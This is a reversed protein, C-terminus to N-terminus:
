GPGIGGSGSGGGTGESGGGSTGGGAAAGGGTGEGAGGTEPAAEAEPAAEPTETAEPTPEAGGSPATTNGGSTGASSPGEGCQKFGYSHAAEQFATLASVAKSEAAGLASSEGREDALKSEDEAKALEEAATMVEGADAPAGLGELSSVMGTYLDAVQAVQSTSASGSSSGVGSVAANVEACISDGREIFEEKSLAATTTAVPRSSTTEGGGGGGCGAVALAALPVAVLLAKRPRM